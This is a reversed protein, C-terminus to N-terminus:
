RNTAVGPNFSPTKGVLRNVQNCIAEKGQLDRCLSCRNLYTRVRLGVYTALRHLSTTEQHRDSPHENACAALNLSTFAGSVM